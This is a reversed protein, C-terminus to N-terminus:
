LQLATIGASITGKVMANPHYSFIGSRRVMKVSVLDKSWNDKDEYSFSLQLPTRDIIKCGNTADGIVFEDDGMFNSMWKNYPLLPKSDQYRGNNDQLLDIDLQTGQSLCLLNPSFNLKSAQLAANRIVEIATAKSYKVGARPVFPKAITFIGDPRTASAVSRAFFDDEYMFFWSALQNTLFSQLAPNDSLLETSMVMGSAIKYVNAVKPEFQPESPVFAQGEGIVATNDVYTKLYSYKFMDTDIAISSIVERLHEARYPEFRIQNDTTIPNVRVGLNPPTSGLLSNSQLSPSAKTKLPVIDVTLSEGKQAENAKRFIAVQEAINSFAGKEAEQELPTKTLKLATLEKEFSETANKIQNAFEEKQDNLKQEVSQTHGKVLSLIEEATKAVSQEEVTM